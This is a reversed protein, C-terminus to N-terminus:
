TLPTMVRVGWEPRMVKWTFLGDLRNRLTMDGDNYGRTFLMSLNPNFEGETRFSMEMNKPIYLDPNVLAIADQHYVMDVQYSVGATGIFSISTPKASVNKGLGSWVIPESLTATTGDIAIITRQAELSTIEKTEANVMKVGLKIGDGVKASAYDAGGLTLTSTSTTGPVTFAITKGTGGGNTHIYTLESGLWRLGVADTMEGKKIAAEVLAQSHYLTKLSDTLAVETDSGIISIRNGKPALNKELIAKALNFDKLVPSSALLITSNVNQSLAKYGKSEVKAGLARGAPMLVRKSYEAKDQSLDLSAELLDLEFHVGTPEDVTVQVTDEEINQPQYNRGETALFRAPKKVLLKRGIMNDSNGFNKTYKRDCNAILTSQNWLGRLAEKAVYEQLSIKNTTSM